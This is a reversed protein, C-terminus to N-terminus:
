ILFFIEYLYQSCLTKYGIYGASCFILLSLPYQEWKLLCATSHRLVHPPFMLYESLKRLCCLSFHLFLDTGSLLLVVNTLQLLVLHYTPLGSKYIWTGGGKVSPSKRFMNPLTQSPNFNKLKPQKKKKKQGLLEKELFKSYM